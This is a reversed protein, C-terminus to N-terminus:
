FVEINISKNSALSIIQNMMLQPYILASDKAQMNAFVFFEYYHKQYDINGILFSGYSNLDKTYNKPSVINNFTILTNTLNKQYDLSQNNVIFVADNNNNNLLQYPIDNGNSFIKPYIFINQQLIGLIDLNIKISPSDKIFEVSSVLLGILVLLLPCIIELMFSKKDRIIQIIRKNVSTIFDIWFKNFNSIKPYDNVDYEDYKILKINQKFDIEIKNMKNSNNNENIDNSDNNEINIGNKLVLNHSKKKFKVDNNQDYKSKKSPLITDLNKHSAVNLYVDELTPMSAGYNKIKLNNLNSDLESFFKKLSINNDIKPIRFLIEESLIEFEINPIKDSIFKIIEENSADTQKIINLSIYQGYRDILFLSSGSCKLKGNTMIGIRNGLVAAEEMYHTTLVIIRNNICKKLINWLQRRSTIDMGSSPEDLFVVESGGILALAISLKRKQGGSLEKAQFDTKDKLCMDELAKNIEENINKSEVGKFFCFMELHEKVTLNDFLVDHQPCIGLKQRFHTLNHSDLVNKSNFLAEGSDAEYLGCLISITTSKGAGNHGLLAFIENKYFNLNLGDLAKKKEGFKKQLNIISLCEGSRILHEYKSEDEFHDNENNNNLNPNKIKHIEENGQLKANSENGLNNNNNKLIQMQIKEKLGNNSSSNKCWYNKTCLFYFPKTIGFQHTLVNELYFGLFLYLFFNIIFMTYMNSVSYNNYKFQVSDATFKLSNTEFKALVNIGLQLATPPFFSMLIKAFNSVDESLVAVSVFFMIFYILISIIMAIRTKDMIAQFFYGLSFVNMGYLWNFGFIFPSTINKLVRRLIMTNLFSTITNIILYQIFYSLFYVVDKMGMIKMGEKARTEKEKVMRFVLLCLPCIYAIVLFFPLMFGLFNAFPDQILSDFKQNIIGININASPNNTSIQLIITNIMKMMYLYGSSVWKAYSSLDPGIQFPDLSKKLTSPVDNISNRFISDFYSLSYSFDTESRQKLDIGFCLEPFNIKDSGYADSKLYNKMEDQNPFYKFNINFDLPLFPILNKLNLKNLSNVLRKVIDNDKEGVIGIMPKNKCIM